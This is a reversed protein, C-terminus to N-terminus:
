EGQLWPTVLMWYHMGEIQKSGQRTGEEHETIQRRCSPHCDPSKMPNLADPIDIEVGKNKNDNNNINKKDFMVLPM